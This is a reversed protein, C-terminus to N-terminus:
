PDCVLVPFPDRWPPEMAPRAALEVSPGHECAPAPEADAAGTAGGPTPAAKSSWQWLANTNLPAVLFWHEAIALGMLTALMTFGAAEYPTSDAAVAKQALLVALVTSLSVSLPFLLNMPKRAMYTVLYRLHPPLLDEGLNPVGLFLNLKASQHMWWLVLFTWLALPNPQRWTLALMAAATAIVTLEHYLSTRVAEVFRRWGFCGPPCATKRPGTVYGMYFSVLQWGWAVLGCGFAVYASSGTASGATKATGWLSAAFLATAGSVSWAFTRRPLRDLYLILATSFWWLGLTFVVPLGYTAM